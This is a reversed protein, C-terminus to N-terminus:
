RRGLLTDRLGPESTSAGLWIGFFRRAFEADRLEGRGQGNVFFRAVGDPLHLGTIRDGAKVDPFFQTMAKLWRQETEAPVPGARKMEELSREAILRGVLGRAYEIELALPKRMWDQEGIAPETTWLRIDYVHLGLFRLRGEGHLRASSWESLLERPAARQAWGATGTLGAAVALAQAAALRLARRRSFRTMAASRQPLPRM